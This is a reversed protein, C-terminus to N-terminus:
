REDVVTSVSGRVVDFSGRVLDPVLGPLLSVALFLHHAQVQRM